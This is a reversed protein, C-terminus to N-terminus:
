EGTRHRCKIWGATNTTGGAAGDHPEGLVRRTCAHATRGSSTMSPPGRVMCAGSDLHRSQNSDLRQVHINCRYALMAGQPRRAAMAKLLQHLNHWPHESRVM